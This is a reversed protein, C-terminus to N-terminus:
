SNIISNQLFLRSGARSTYQWQTRWPFLHVSCISSSWKQWEDLVTNSTIRQYPTHAYLSRRWAGTTWAISLAIRRIDRDMPYTLTFGIAIELPCHNRRHIVNDVKQVVPAQLSIRSTPNVKYFTCAASERLQPVSIAIVFGFFRKEKALLWISFIPFVELSGCYISFGFISTKRPWFGCLLFCLTGAQFM